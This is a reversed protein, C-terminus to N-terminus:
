NKIWEYTKERKIDKICQKLPIFLSMACLMYSLLLYLVSIISGRFIGFAIIWSLSVFLIVNIYIDSYIKALSFGFIYKLRIEEKKEETYFYMIVLVSLCFLVHIMFFVVRQPLYSNFAVYDNNVVSLNPNTLAVKYLNVDNFDIRIISSNKYDNVDMNVFVLDDSSLGTEKFLGVIKYEKDDIKYYDGIKYSSNECVVCSADDNDFFKGKVLKVKFSNNYAAIRIIKSKMDVGSISIDKNDNILNQIYKELNADNKFDLSYDSFYDNNAYDMYKIDSLYKNSLLTYSFIILFTIILLLRIKNKM